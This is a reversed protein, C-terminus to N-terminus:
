VLSADPTISHPHPPQLVASIPLALCSNNKLDTLTILSAAQYSIRDCACVCVDCICGTSVSWRLRVRQPGSGPRGRLDAPGTLCFICACLVHTAVSLSQQTLASLQAALVCSLICVCQVVWRRQRGSRRQKGHWRCHTHKIPTHQLFCACLLLTSRRTHTHTQTQTMRVFLHANGVYRSCCVQTEVDEDSDDDGFVNVARPAQAGAAPRRQAAAPLGRRQLGYQM